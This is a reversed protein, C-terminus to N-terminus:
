RPTPAAARLDRKLIDHVEDFDRPRWVYVEVPTHGLAALWAKQPITLRGKDTKLEAFILREDRVLTLDPFGAASRRSDYPHYVLWGYLEALQIVQEQWGKEPLPPLVPHNFTWM